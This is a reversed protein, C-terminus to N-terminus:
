RGRRPMLVAEIRLEHLSGLILLDWSGLLRATRPLFDRALADLRAPPLLDSRNLLVIRRGAPPANKLYGHPSELLAALRDSTLVDGPRFGFRETMLAMRHVCDETLPEGLRDAGLVACLLTTQSPVPPEWDAWAKLPKHRAGDAECILFDAAKSSWLRDIAEPSLGELKERDGDRVHRQAALLPSHLRLAARIRETDEEPGEYGELLLLPLNNPAVKTTTTLLTTGSRSLFRGLARLLTTKGGGGVLSVLERGQGGLGFPAFFIGADEADAAM